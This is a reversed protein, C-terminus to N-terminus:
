KIRAAPSGRWWYIALDTFIYAMLMKKGLFILVTRFYHNLEKNTFVM